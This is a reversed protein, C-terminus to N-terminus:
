FDNKKQQLVFFYARRFMMESIKVDFFLFNLILIKRYFKSNVNLFSFSFLMWVVVGFILWLYFMVYNHLDVLTEMLVTASDQFDCQFSNAFDASIMQGNFMTLDLVPVFAYCYVFIFLFLCFIIKLKKSFLIFKSM